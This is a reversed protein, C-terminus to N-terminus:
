ESHGRLEAENMSQIDADTRDMFAQSNRCVDHVQEITEKATQCNIGVKEALRLMAENSINKGAGNVSTSHENWSTVSKTLDYAPALRWVGSKDMRFAFNKSHDDQNDIAVNFVMLRFMM